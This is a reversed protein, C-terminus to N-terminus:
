MNKLDLIEAEIRDRKMMLMQIYINKNFLRKCVKKKLTNFLDLQAPYQCKIDTNRYHYLISTRDLDMLEALVPFDRPANFDKSCKFCILIAMKKALIVEWERNEELIDIIRGFYETLEDEVIKKVADFTEEQIKKM